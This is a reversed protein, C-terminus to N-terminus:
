KYITKMQVNTIQVARKRETHKNQVCKKVVIKIIEASNNQM